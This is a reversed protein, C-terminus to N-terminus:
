ALTPKALTPWNLNALTPWLRNRALTPKALTPWLGKNIFAFCRPRLLDLLFRRVCFETRWISWPLRIDRRRNSSLCIQRSSDSNVFSVISWPLRLVCFIHKNDFTFWWFWSESYVFYRLFHDTKKSMRLYYWSFIVSRNLEPSDLVIRLTMKWLNRIPRVITSLCAQCCSSTWFLLYWHQVSIEPVNKWSRSRWPCEPRLRMSGINCSVTIIWRPNNWWM